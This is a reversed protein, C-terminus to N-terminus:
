SANRDAGPLGAEAGLERVFQRQTESLREGLARVVADPLNFDRGCQRVAAHLARNWRSIASTMAQRQAPVSVLFGREIRLKDEASMARVHDLRDRPKLVDSQTDSQDQLPLGLQAIAAAKELEAREEEAAKEAMFDRVALPDFQYERGNTGEQLVPFDPYRDMWAAITPLSVNLARALERKNLRLAPVATAAESSLALSLRVEMKQM